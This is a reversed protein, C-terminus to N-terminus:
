SFIPYVFSDAKDLHFFPSGFRWVPPLPVTKLTRGPGEDKKGYDPDM